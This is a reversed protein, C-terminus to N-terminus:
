GWRKAGQQTAKGQRVGPVGAFFRRAHFSFEAIDAGQPTQMCVRTICKPRAHLRDFPAAGLPRM